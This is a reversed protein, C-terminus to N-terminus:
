QSGWYPNWSPNFFCILNGSTDMFCKFIRMSFRKPKEEDHPLSLVREASKKLHITRWQKMSFSKGFNYFFYTFGDAAKLVADINCPLGRWLDGINYVAEFQKNDFKWVQCGQESM